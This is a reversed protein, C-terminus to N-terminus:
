SAIAVWKWEICSTDGISLPRTSQSTFYAYIGVDGPLDSWDADKVLRPVRAELRQFEPNFRIWGDKLGRLLSERSSIYVPHVSTLVHMMGASVNYYHELREDSLQDALAIFELTGDVRTYPFKIVRVDFNGWWYAGCSEKVPSTTSFCSKNTNVKLGSLELTECVGLFYSDPIIIDDGFVYISYRRIIPWPRNRIMWIVEAVSGYTGNYVDQALCSGLSLAWFMLSEIPFCLANGMTAMSTYPRIVEGDPLEIGSSRYRTFLKFAEKPLLLRCLGLRLRDSADSLDITSVGKRRCAYFNHSQDFLHIASRTLFSSCILEYMVKMLGQQAFMLEKPEICIYRKKTVDKPVVSLRSLCEFDEPDTYKVTSLDGCAGALLNSQLRTCARFNWKQRDTEGGAVAGPGHRGFPDDKWQQLSPHLRGDDLLVEQLLTKAIPVVESNFDLLAPSYQANTPLSPDSVRSKFSALDKLEDVVPDIDKAKSFALLSQRLIQFRFSLDHSNLVEERQNETSFSFKIKGDDNFFHRFTQLFVSPLLLLPDQSLWIRPVALSTHNIVAVEFNKGLEALTTIVLRRTDNDSGARNLIVDISTVFCSAEDEPFFSIADKALSKYFVGFLDRTEM